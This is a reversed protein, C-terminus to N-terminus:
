GRRNSRVQEDQKKRKLARVTIALYRYGSWLLALSTGVGLGMFPVLSGIGVSTEAVGYYVFTGLMFSAIFAVAVMNGLAFLYDHQQAILRHRLDFVQDELERIYVEPGCFQKANKLRAQMKNFDTYDKNVPYENM